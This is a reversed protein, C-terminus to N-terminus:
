TAWVKLYIYEDDREPLLYVSVIEAYELSATMQLLLHNINKWFAIHESIHIIIAM